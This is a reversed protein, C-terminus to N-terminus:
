SMTTAVWIMVARPAPPQNGYAAGASQSPMPPGSAAAVMPGVWSSSARGTLAAPIQAVVAQHFWAWSVQANPSGDSVSRRAHNFSNQAAIQKTPNALMVTPDTTKGVIVLARSM